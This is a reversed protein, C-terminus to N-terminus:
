KRKTKKPSKEKSQVLANLKKLYANEMRLHEVEDILAEQSGEVPKNKKNGKKMSPREKKNLKLADLGGNELKRQCRYVTSPAPINFIAATERTSTGKESMYSLVDLKFQLTYNTYGKQFAKDGQYQYQQIWTRLLSEDVGISDAFALQSENSTLYRKVANLKDMATFKAM